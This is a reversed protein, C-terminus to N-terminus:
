KRRAKRNYKSHPLQPRLVIVPASRVSEHPPKEQPNRANMKYFSYKEGGHVEGGELQQRLVRALKGDARMLDRLANEKQCTPIESNDM